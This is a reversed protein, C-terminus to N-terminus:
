SLDGVAERFEAAQNEVTLGTVRSRQQEGIETREIPDIDMFEEVKNRLSTSKLEFVCRDPCIEKTGVGDSVITPTGSLMGELSAVPFSDGDSPQIYLSAAQFHRVFEDLGVFGPTTVNKGYETDNHGSGLIVLDGQIEELSDVMMGYNNAIKSGGATLVTFPDDPSRPTLSILNQYKEDMIPPHVYRSPVGPIYEQVWNAVETGVAIIGDLVQSVVPGIGKWLYHSARDELTYFTEDAALFLVTTGPNAVGYVLATQLPASGEAIIVDYSPLKIGTKARELESGIDQGQTTGTEFHIFEAGVANGFVEHSPHPHEGQYLMCVNM